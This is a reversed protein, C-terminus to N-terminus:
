FTTSNASHLMHMNRGAGGVRYRSGTFGSGGSNLAAEWDGEEDEGEDRGRMMQLMRKAKERARESGREEIERLVEVARAEKALGRFRMSGHSLAFLAAVCNERTSESELENRRLMSVLCEVANADLMSSRGEPCVALNCLILLVRSASSGTQSLALLTPVANLKVLKVRNSQVLTLHYLALASDHRTRESESRVLAHMLPPLAGLVGIAMKNEDELALSFLAGAAHEQSESSGGKLVDILFPVFGSRVIMVKNPKELSLNVLSAIANTQVVAYRSTILPKLALLLRPTCLSVRLEEKTRTTKRLLIVAEEQEVVEPNKLKKLLNEEEESVTGNSNPIGTLADLEAIESSSSSSYCLPRTALPLPTGPNSTGPIVVSEESSSSYFHNVRPGLETAAHSFIVPPNEAVGRLLERESVRLDPKRARNVEEEEAEMLARVVKEVSEYEPLRPHEMGSDDCWHAITSKIARNAIVTSFDPRSGDELKPSFGLDRCVQVTAREFTQGSSVIVPDAMLTGYVPCVFDKPPPKIDMKSTSPSSSSSSSRYFSIKWRHKGNGGM